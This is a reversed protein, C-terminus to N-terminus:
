IYKFFHFLYIFVKAKFFSDATDMLEVINRFEQFKAGKRNDHIHVYKYDMNYKVVVRKKRGFEKALQRLKNNAELAYLVSM